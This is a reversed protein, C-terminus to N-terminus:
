HKTELSFNRKSFIAFMQRLKNGVFALNVGHDIEVAVEAAILHGVDQPLLADFHNLPLDILRVNVWYFHGTQGDATNQKITGARHFSEFPARAKAAVKWREKSNTGGRCLCQSRFCILRNFNSLLGI